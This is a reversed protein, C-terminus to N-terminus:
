AIGARSADAAARREVAGVGVGAGVVGAVRRGSARVDGVRARAIVVVRARGAVGALRTDALARRDVARTEVVSAVDADAVAGAAAQRLRQGAADRADAEM